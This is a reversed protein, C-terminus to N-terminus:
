KMACNLGDMNPMLVDCIVLDPVVKDILEFAKQGDEAEYVIYDDKLIDKLLYRLGPEDEVILIKKRKSGQLNEIIARKNNEVTSAPHVPETYSTIARYLYSPKVPCKLIVLLQGQVPYLFFFKLYYGDMKM